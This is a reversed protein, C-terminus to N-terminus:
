SVQVTCTAVKGNTSIVKITATGEGRAVIRGASNVSAVSPNSSKFTLTTQADEPSLAVKLTYMEKTSSNLSLETKDLIIEEPAKNVTIECTAISSQTRAYITATGEGRAVIKGNLDVTVVNPDSSKWACTETDSYTATFTYSDKVNMTLESKDLTIYKVDTVEVTCIASMGSSTTVEIEATGEGRAVIRGRSNVSAVKPKKSRIKYTDGEPIDLTAFYMEGNNMYLETVDILKRMPVVVTQRSIEEGCVSCYVVEEYSGESEYTPAVENEKVPESTTHIGTAPIVVDQASIETYEGDALTYYKGDHGVFYAINGDEVCTPSKADITEEFRSATIFTATYVVDGTVTPLTDGVAYENTGDTFGNFIYRYEAYDAKTPTAGDYTPTTGYRVNEDTELTTGDENKWTVTYSNTTETFQATYTVDGTVASVTGWGSFTYTYQANGTKTPTTGNYAPTEGYAVTDTKLTTGDDNKWTVTYKNVTSSFQATYTVDGTVASVEPSWGSFTYSYQATSAKTPTAGDYSPMSGKKVNEDTELTTGDYNLWTVKYTSKETFYGPNSTGGDIHAYTKDVKSSDYTTGAGGVLSRCALFMDYSSTVNDTNWGSGVYITVINKDQWFMTHMNTVKSTNFSSLDLSTLATSSFMSYMNTVSSTNWGSLDISTLATCDLVLREMNTVSSTNWSSLDLSTLATCKFFIYGMDEVSSTNWGNVNLSTLATCYYFMHNITTVASVNFGRLDLSTLATCYSFMYSMDTVSSTDWGNFDLSTIKICYDFMYYMSTADSTDLNSVDISTANNLGAFLFSADASTKVHTRHFILIIFSKIIYIIQYISIRYIKINIM